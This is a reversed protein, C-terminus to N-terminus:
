DIYGALVTTKKFELVDGDPHFVQGVLIYIGLDSINGEIDTGDWIIIGQTSLLENQSLEKIKFGAADHVSINAVFGTKELNYNLIMVDDTGDQDPSFTETLINFMEEGPNINIESSNKYGPTAYRVNQSASQWNRESNTEIDFSIRELSVGETDDILQFHMDETYDFSDLVEGEANTITVNGDGNNFAPLESNFINAGEEPKYEQILFDVDETFALYENPRLSINSTVTKMVENQSNSIILGQLELFKDSTNYIEVFDEGATYPDFLIESLLIDGVAPRGPVNFMFSYDDMINGNLDNISSATMIYELNSDFDTDFQLLYENGLSGITSVTSPNGIGKDVTYNNIDLADSPEVPEDFKINIQNASLAIAEIVSPPTRDEEFAKFYMDDYFFKDARTASFKCSLGFFKSDSFSFRSDMFEVDLSTSEIGDYNTKISWLGSPYVDIDIRVLAPESAMAGMTASAIQEIEGNNLYYFDLADDSGNEGIQIFYGNAITLDQNDLALYIISRNNDSPSFDLMHYFGVSITDADITSPRYIAAEGADPANLQLQAEDNVIFQDVDGTWDSLDDSSFDSSWQANTASTFCLSILFLGVTNKIISKM